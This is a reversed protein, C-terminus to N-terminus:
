RTEVVIKIGEQRLNTQFAESIKRLPFTKLGLREKEVLVAARASSPIATTAPSARGTQALVDQVIREIDSPAFNM